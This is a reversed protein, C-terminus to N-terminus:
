SVTYQGSPYAGGNGGFLMTAVSRYHVLVDDATPLARVWGASDLDLRSQERTDWESAPTQLNCNSSARRECQTLWDGSQKMADLLPWETSWYNLAAINIGLPSRANASNSAPSQAMTTTALSGWLLLGLAISSGLGPWRSCTM